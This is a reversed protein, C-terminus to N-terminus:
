GTETDLYPPGKKGKIYYAKWMTPQRKKKWYYFTSERIGENACFAKIDLDSEQHRLMLERFKVESLM